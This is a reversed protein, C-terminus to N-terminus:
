HKDEAAEEFYNPEFMSLLSVDEDEFYNVNRRTAKTRNEPLIQEVLHNRQVFKSPTKSSTKGHDCQSENESHTGATGFQLSSSPSADTEGSQANKPSSQANRSATGVQTHSSSPHVVSEIEENLVNSDGNGNKGCTNNLEHVKVNVSEVIKHLRKNFCRYAKSKSSYM